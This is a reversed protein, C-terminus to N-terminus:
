YALHSRKVEPLFRRINLTLPEPLLLMVVSRKKKAMFGRLLIGELVETNMM